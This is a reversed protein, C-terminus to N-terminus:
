AHRMLTKNDTKKYTKLCKKCKAMYGGNPLRLRDFFNWGQSLTKSRKPNSSMVLYFAIFPKFPHNKYLASLKKLQLNLFM